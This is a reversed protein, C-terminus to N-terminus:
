TIALALNVMNTSAEYDQTALGKVKWFLSPYSLFNAPLFIISTRLVLCVKGFTLAYHM